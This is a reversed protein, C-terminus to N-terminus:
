RRGGRLRRRLMRLLKRGREDRRSLDYAWRVPAPRVMEVAQPFRYPRGGFSAKFRAPGDLAARANKDGAILASVSEEPMGGFDLRRFGHRKAWLAAEWHVAAPVSLRGAVGSRDMGTVRAKLTGGCATFLTASSPVGDVEGVLLRVHGQEALVAYLRQLYEAGLPEFDGQHRATEAALDALIPLDRADGPRVTVGCGAWKDLWRCVQRSLGRRLSEEDPDLDLALSSAPAVGARSPRFGRRVLDETVDEGDLPPQVFLMRVHGRALRTLARGLADRVAARDGSPDLVPGYAVYGIEGLLPIRRLLVQVGGVLADGEWALLQLPRFDAGGRVRAWGSLQSVDSGAIGDVFADWRALEGPAAVTTVIGPGPAGRLGLGGGPGPGRSWVAM